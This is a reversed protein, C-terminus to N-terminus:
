DLEIRRPPGGSMKERLTYNEPPTLGAQELIQRGLITEHPWSCLTENVKFRYLKARPPKRGAKACEELDIVEEILEEAKELLGEAEDLLKEPNPIKNDM